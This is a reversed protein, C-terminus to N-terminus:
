CQTRKIDLHHIFVTGGGFHSHSNHRMISHRHGSGSTFDSQPGMTINPFSSQQHVQRHTHQNQQLSVASRPPVHPATNYVTVPTTSYTFHQSNSRHPMGQRSSPSSKTSGSSSSHHITMARHRTTSGSAPPTKTVPSSSQLGKDVPKKPEQKALNLDNQVQQVQKIAADIDTPRVEQTRKLPSRNGSGSAESVKSELNELDRVVSHLMELTYDLAKDGQKAAPPAQDEVVQLYQPPSTPSRTSSFRKEETSLRKPSYKDGGRSSAVSQSSTHVDIDNSSHTSSSESDDHRGQMGLINEPIPSTHHLDPLSGRPMNSTISAAQHAKTHHPDNLSVTKSVSRKTSSKMGKCRPCRQNVSSNSSTTSSASHYRDRPQKIPSRPPLPPPSDSTPCPQLTNTGGSGDAAPKPRVGLEIRLNNTQAYPSIDAKSSTSLVPSRKEVAAATTTAHPLPLPPLPPSPPKDSTSRSRPPSPGARHRVNPFPPFSRHSPGMATNDHAQHKTPSSPKQQSETELGYNSSPLSHSHVHNGRRMQQMSQPNKSPVPELYDGPEKNVGYDELFQRQKMLFPTGGAHGFTRSRPMPPAEGAPLIRHNPRDAIQKRKRNNDELIDRLLDELARDVGGSAQIDGGTEVEDDRIYSYDPDDVHNKTGDTGISWPKRPARPPVPPPSNPEDACLGPNVANITYSDQSASSLRNCALPYIEPSTSRRLTALATKETLSNARRM